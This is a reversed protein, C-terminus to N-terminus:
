DLKTPKGGKKGAAEGLATWLDQRATNGYLYRKLYIQIGRVFVDQGLYHMITDFVSEAKSYTLMDFIQLLHQLNPLVFSIFIPLASPLSPVFPLPPVSVNNLRKSGSVDVEVPHSSPKSDLKLGM